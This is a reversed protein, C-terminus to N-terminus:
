KYRWYTAINMKVASPPPSHAGERFTPPYFVGPSQATPTIIDPDASFM